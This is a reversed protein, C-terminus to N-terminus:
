ADIVGFAKWTGPTGSNTCVWGIKGGASPSTDFVVSGVYHYGGVPAASAFYICPRNAGARFAIGGGCYGAGGNSGSKDRCEWDGNRNIYSNQGATGGAETRIVVAGSVSEVSPGTIRINSYSNTDSPLNTTLRLDPVADKITLDKVEFLSNGRLDQYDAGSRAGSGQRIGRSGIPTCQGDDVGEPDVYWSLTEDMCDLVRNGMSVGDLGKVQPQFLYLDDAANMGSTDAVTFDRDSGNTVSASIESVVEEGDSLAYADVGYRLLVEAGATARLTTDDVISWSGTAITTYQMPLYNQQIINRLSTTSADFVINGCPTNQSASASVDYADWVPNNADFFNKEIVSHTMAEVYISNWHFEFYNNAILGSDFGQYSTGGPKKNIKIGIGPRTTTGIEGTGQTNAEFLNGLVKLSHVASCELGVNNRRIVNGEIESYTIYGNPAVDTGEVLIGDGYHNDVIRCDRVFFNCAGNAHIGHHGFEVIDCHSIRTTTGNAVGRNIVIGDQSTYAANQSGLFSLDKITAGNNRPTVDLTITLLAADSTTKL